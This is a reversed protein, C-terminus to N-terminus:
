QSDESSRSTSPMLPHGLSETSPPGYKAFSAELAPISTSCGNPSPEMTSVVHHESASAILIQINENVNPSKAAMQKAEFAHYTSQEVSMGLVQRRYNLWFEANTAGTGICVHGPFAYTVVESAYDQTRGIYYMCAKNTNDFTGIILQIGADYQSWAQYIRDTLDGPMPSGNPVINPMVNNMFHESRHVYVARSIAQQINGHSRNPLEAINHEIVPFLDSAIEVRGACVAYLNLDPSMFLKHLDDTSDVDGISGMTDSVLILHDPRGEAPKRKKSCLVGIGITMINPREPMRLKPRVQLNPKPAIM